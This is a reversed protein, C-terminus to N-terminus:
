PLLRVLLTVLIITVIVAAFGRHSLASLQETLEPHLKILNLILRYQTFFWFMVLLATVVGAYATTAAINLHLFVEWKGSMEAALASGLMLTVFLIAIYMPALTKPERAESLDM